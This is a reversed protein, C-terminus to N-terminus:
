DEQDGDEGRDDDDEIPADGGHDCAQGTWGKLRDRRLRLTIGLDFPVPADSM